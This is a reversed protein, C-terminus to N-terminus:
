SIGEIVQIAKKQLQSTDFALHLVFRTGIVAGSFGRLNIGAAALKTTIIGGIGPDNDGEVRVSHLRNIASFGIATAAKLEADGSLPTVFVVGMGPREPSRRAIVFDLDAGAEALATLKTALAGPKDELTAIWVDEEDVILDMGRDEKGAAALRRSLIAAGRRSSGIKEKDVYEYGLKEAVERAIEMGWSGLQRSVTIMAM